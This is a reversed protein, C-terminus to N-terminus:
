NWISAKILKSDQFTNYLTYVPTSQASCPTWPLFHINEIKLGNALTEGHNVPSMPIVKVVPMFGCM